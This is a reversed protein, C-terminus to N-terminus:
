AAVEGLKAQTWAVAADEFARRDAQLFAKFLGANADWQRAHWRCFCWTNRDHDKRGAVRSSAHSAEYPGFCWLFDSHIDVGVAHTVLVALCPLQRVRAMYELDRVRESRRPKVRKRPIPKTSRRLPSRRIM